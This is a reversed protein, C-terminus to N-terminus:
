PLSSVLGVPVGNDGHTSVHETTDSEKCGWLSYGALCAGRDMSDELSSCKLPYGKGVGHYRGLGPISGKDRTDGARASQKGSAGGPFSQM